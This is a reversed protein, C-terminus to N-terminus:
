NQTLLADIAGSLYVLPANWNIAIENTSYSCELDVYSKAPYPSREVEPGCDTLVSINPGGALFGPVPAENDDAESPRHHINMVRKYGFGTVFCYGTANRGLIYDLDSLASYLYYRNGTLQYGKIKLMGENAVQSNSGWVFNQISVGYPATKSVGVLEDVLAIFDNKLGLNRIIEPLEDYNNLLSIFGLAYVQNWSPVVPKSYKEIIVDLYEDKGTSLFLESATWFFEDSFNRDGYGGTFIDDPQVYPLNPNSMAWGWAKEAKQLCKEALGPFHSEYDALVRHAKAAFAAFNLTAATGKSVVFRDNTAEHPMVMGEFNKTTLKHYVGGDYPDQMTLMWKLNYLTETLLDPVGSGSEPISVDLKKYYDTFHTLASLLTYTTIGSNVIYKNYDGADYWGLPSSIITGEPRNDDAASSHVYIITDPHGAPRAWRGGYQPEIAMGSRNFYFAKLAAKTIERFPQDKVRIEFNENTEPLVVVYTGPVNLQSFDVKRVADGSQDWFLPEEPIASFVENGQADIIIVQNVEERVLLLKPADTIYGVQNYLVPMEKEINEHGTCSFLQISVMSLLFLRFFNKM